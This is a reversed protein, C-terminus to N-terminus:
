SLGGRFDAKRSILESRATAFFGEAGFPQQYGCGFKKECFLDKPKENIKEGSKRQAVAAESNCDQKPKSIGGGV